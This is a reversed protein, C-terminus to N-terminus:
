ALKIKLKRGQAQQILGLVWRSHNGCGSWVYELHKLGNIHQPNASPDVMVGSGGYKDAWFKPLHSIEQTVTISFIICPHIPQPELGVHFPEWM